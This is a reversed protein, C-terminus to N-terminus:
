VVFRFRITIINTVSSDKGYGDREQKKDGVKEMGVKGLILELTVQGKGGGQGQDECGEEPTRKLEDLPIWGHPSV